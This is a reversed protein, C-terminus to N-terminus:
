YKEFQSVNAIPWNRRITPSFLFCASTGNKAFVPPKAIAFTQNKGIFHVTPTIRRICKKLYPFNRYIQYLFILNENGYYRNNNQATTPIKKIFSRGIKFRLRHEPIDAANLFVGLNAIRKWRHVKLFGFPELNFIPNLKEIKGSECGYTIQCINVLVFIEFFFHM